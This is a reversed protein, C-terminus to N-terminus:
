HQCKPIIKFRIKIECKKYQEDSNKLNFSQDSYINGKWSFLNPTLQNISLYHTSDIAMSFFSFSPTPPPVKVSLAHWVASSKVRLM